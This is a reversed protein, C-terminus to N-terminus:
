NFIKNYTCKYGRKKKGIENTLYKSTNNSYKDSKISIKFKEISIKQEIDSTSMAEQNKYYLLLERIIFDNDYFKLTSFIIDLLNIENDKMLQKILNSSVKIYKIIHKLRERTLLGKEYLKFIIDVNDNKSLQKLKIINNSDVIDIIKNILKM